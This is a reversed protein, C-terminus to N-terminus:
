RRRKTKSNKKKTSKTKRNKNKGGFYQKPQEEKKEAFPNLSSFWNSGQSSNSSGFWSSTPANGQSNNSTSGFM